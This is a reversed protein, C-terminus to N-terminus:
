LKLLAYTNGHASEKTREVCYGDHVRGRISMLWNGAKRADIDGRPTGAQQVLLERLQPNAWDSEYIHSDIERRTQEEAKRIM